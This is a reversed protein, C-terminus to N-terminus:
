CSISITHVPAVQWSKLNQMVQINEEFGVEQTWAILSIRLQMKFLNWDRLSEFPSIVFEFAGQFILFYFAFLTLRLDWSKWPMVRNNKFGNTQCYKEELQAFMLYGPKQRPDAKKTCCTSVTSILYSHQPFRLSCNKGGERYEAKPFYNFSEARALFKASVCINWLLNESHPGVYEWFCNCFPKMREIAQSRRGKWVLNM